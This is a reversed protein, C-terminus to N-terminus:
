NCSKKIIIQFKKRKLANSFYIVPKNKKYHIKDPNKIAFYKKYNPLCEKLIHFIFTSCVFANPRNKLDWDFLIKHESVKKDLIRTYNIICKQYVSYQEKGMKPRLVLVREKDKTLSKDLFIEGKDGIFMITFSFLGNPIKILTHSYKANLFSTEGYDFYDNYKAFVIDGTKIQFASSFSLFFLLFFLSKSLFTM